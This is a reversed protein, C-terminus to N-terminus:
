EGKRQQNNITGKGIKFAKAVDSVDIKSDGHLGTRATKDIVSVLEEALDDNCLGAPATGRGRHRTLADHLFAGTAETILPDAFEVRQLAAFSIM